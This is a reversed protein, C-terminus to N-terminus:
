GITRLSFIPRTRRRGTLACREIIATPHVVRDARIRRSVLGPAERAETSDSFPSSASGCYRPKPWEEIASKEPMPKALHLAGRPGNAGDGFRRGEQNKWSASLRRSRSASSGAPFVPRPRQILWYLPEGNM